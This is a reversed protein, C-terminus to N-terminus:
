KKKMVVYMFVIIMAYALMTLLMITIEKKLKIIETYIFASLFYIGKTRFSVFFVIQFDM